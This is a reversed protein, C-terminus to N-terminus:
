AQVDEVVLETFAPVSASPPTWQAASRVTYSEGGVVLVDGGAIDHHGVVFCSLVANPTDLRLRLVTEPQVPQLPTCSLGTLKTTPAGRKGGAMTARMTSATLTAQKRLTM